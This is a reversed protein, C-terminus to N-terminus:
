WCCEAIKVSFLFHAMLSRFAELVGVGTRCGEALVPLSRGDTAM